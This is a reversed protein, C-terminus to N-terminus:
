LLLLSVQQKCGKWPRTQFGKAVLYKACRESCEKKSPNGSRYASYNTSILDSPEMCMWESDEVGDQDGWTLGMWQVIAELSSKGDKDLDKAWSIQKSKQVTPAGSSKLSSNNITQKSRRGGGKASLSNSTTGSNSIPTALNELSSM